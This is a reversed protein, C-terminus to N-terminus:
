CSSDPVLRGGRTFAARYGIRLTAIVPDPHRARLRLTTDIYSDDMEWDGTLIDISLMRGRNEPSDVQARIEADYLARGRAMVEAPEWQSQANM